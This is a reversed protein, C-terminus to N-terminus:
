FGVPKDNHHDVFLGAFDERLHRILVDKPQRFVEPSRASQQHHALANSRPAAQCSRAVWLTRANVPAVPAGALGGSGSPVDSLRSWTGLDHGCPRRGQLPGGDIRLRAWVFEGMDQAGKQSTFGASRGGIKVQRSYLVLRSRRYAKQLSFIM